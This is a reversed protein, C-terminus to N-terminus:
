YLFFPSSGTLALPDLTKTSASVRRPEIAAARAQRHLQYTRTAKFDYVVDVDLLEDILAQDIFQIAFPQELFKASPLV